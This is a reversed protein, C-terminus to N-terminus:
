ALGHLCALTNSAIASRFWQIPYGDDDCHTPKILVLRFLSASARPM